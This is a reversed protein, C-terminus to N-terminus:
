EGKSYRINAEMLGLKTNIQEMLVICGKALNFIAEREAQETNKAGDRGIKKLFAAKSLNADRTLGASVLKDITSGTRIHERAIKKQINAM